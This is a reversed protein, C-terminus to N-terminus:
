HAVRYMANFTNLATAKEFRTAPPVHRQSVPVYIKRCQSCETEGPAGSYIKRGCKCVQHEAPPTPLGKRCTGCKDYLIGGKGRKIRNGCACTRVPKTRKVGARCYFCEDHTKGKRSRM